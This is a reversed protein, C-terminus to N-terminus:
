FFPWSSIQRPTKWAARLTASSSALVTRSHSASDSAMTTPLVLDMFTEIMTEMAKTKINKQLQWGLRHLQLRKLQRHVHGCVGDIGPTGENVSTELVDRDMDLLNGKVANAM